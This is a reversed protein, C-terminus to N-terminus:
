DSGMMCIAQDASVLASLAPTVLLARAPMRMGEESTDALSHAHQTFDKHSLQPVQSGNLGSNSRNFHRWSSLSVM